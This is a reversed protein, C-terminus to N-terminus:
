EKKQLFILIPSVCASLTTMAFRVWGIIFTWDHSTIFRRRLIINDKLEEMKNAGASMGVIKLIVEVFQVYKTQFFLFFYM